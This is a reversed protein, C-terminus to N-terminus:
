EFVVKADGIRLGVDIAAEGEGDRWRLKSGVLMRRGGEAQVDGHISADGIRTGMVVSGVTERPARITLDGIGMNVALDKEGALITVDGIGVRVDLPAWRPVTIRGDLGLKRRQSRRLGTLRVEVVGDKTRPELKLREAYRRCREADLQKCDVELETRIEAADNAEIELEGIGFSIRVSQGVDVPQILPLDGTVQIRDYFQPLESTRETAPATSSLIACLLGLTLIRQM